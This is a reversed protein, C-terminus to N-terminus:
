EVLDTSVFEPMPRCQHALVTAARPPLRCASLAPLPCPAQRCNRNLRSRGSASVMASAAHVGHHQVRRQNAHQDDVVLLGHDIGIALYQAVRRLAGRVRGDLVQAGPQERGAGRRVSRAFGLLGAATEVRGEAVARVRGDRCHVVGHFHALGVADHEEVHAHRRAGITGPGGFLDTLEVRQDLDDDARRIRVDIGLVDAFARRRVVLEEVQLLRKMRIFHPLERTCEAVLAPAGIAAGGLDVIDIRQCPQAITGAEEFQQRRAEISSLTPV